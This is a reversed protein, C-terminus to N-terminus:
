SDSRDGGPLDPTYKLKMGHIEGARNIFARVVDADFHRGANDVIIRYAEGHPFAEKYPRKSTLADYVDAVAVIRASLPIEDGKMGSPYGQGDWREHHYYAIEKGLNLYSRGEVRREAEEITSGGIVSHNKMIEYEDPTLRGPKHLISDPIAVKGIDHLPCSNVLDTIYEDTVYDRFGDFTALERALIGTYGMIKELHAGTEIDRYETLKALSLITVLQAKHLSQNLEQSKRELEAKETIDFFFTILAAPRNRDDRLASERYMVTAATGDVRRITVERSVHHSTAVLGDHIDLFDVTNTDAIIIDTLPHHLLDANTFGTINSAGRNISTIRRSLDMTIIGIYENQIIKDQFETLDGILSEMRKRSTIDRAVAQFTGSGPQLSLTMETWLLAETQSKMKMEVLEPVTGKEFLSEVIGALRKRDRHGFLSFFGHGKLRHPTLGTRDFFTSNAYRMTGGRECLIIMDRSNEVLNRYQVRSKILNESSKQRSIEVAASNALFSYYEYNTELISTEAFVAIAGGVIKKTKLPYIILSCGDLAEAARAYRSDDRSLRCERFFEEVGRADRYFLPKGSVAIRAFPNDPYRKPHIHIGVLNIGFLNESEAILARPHIDAIYMDDKDILAFVACSAGLSTYGRLINDISESTSNASKTEHITNVLVTLSTEKERLDQIKRSVKEELQFSYREIASEAIRRATIDEMTEVMFLVEGEPSIIPTSTVRYYAEGSSRRSTVEREPPSGAKGSWDFPCEPCPHDDRDPRFVRGCSAPTTGDFWAHWERFKRNAFAIVRDRGVIFV